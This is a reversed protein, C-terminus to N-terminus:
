TFAEVHTGRYVPSKEAQLDRLIREAKGSDYKTILNQDELDLDYFCLSMDDRQEALTKGRELNAKAWWKQRSLREKSDMRKASAQVAKRYQETQKHQEFAELLDRIAASTSSAPRAASHMRVIPLKILMNLLFRCGSIQFCYTTFRSRTYQHAAQRHTRLLAWYEEQNSPNMWSAVDAQWANMMRTM